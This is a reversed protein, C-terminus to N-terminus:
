DEGFKLLNKFFYVFLGYFLFPKGAKAPLKPLQIKLHMIHKRYQKKLNKVILFPSTTNCCELNTLFHIM